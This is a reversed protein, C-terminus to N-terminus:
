DCNNKSIKIAFIIKIITENLRILIKWSRLAKADLLVFRRLSLYAERLPSLRSAAHRRGVELRACGARFATENFSDHCSAAENNFHMSRNCRKNSNDSNRACQKKLRITIFHPLNDHQNMALFRNKLILSLLEKLVM